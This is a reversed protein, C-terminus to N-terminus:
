TREKQTQIEKVAPCLISNSHMKSRIIYKGVQNLINILPTNYKDSLFKAFYLFQIQIKNRKKIHAQILEKQGKPHHSKISSPKGLATQFLVQRQPCCPFM